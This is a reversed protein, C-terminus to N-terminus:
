YSPSPYSSTYIFSDPSLSRLTLFPYTFFFWYPHQTDSNIKKNNNNWKKYRYTTSKDSRTTTYNLALRTLFKTKQVWELWINLTTTKLKKFSADMHLSEGVFSDGTNRPYSTPQGGPDTQASQVIDSHKEVAQFRFKIGRIEAQLTRVSPVWSWNCSNFSTHNTQASQCTIYMANRDAGGDGRIDPYQAQLPSQVLHNQCVVPCRQM